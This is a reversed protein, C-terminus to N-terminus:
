GHTWEGLYKPMMARWTPWDHAWGPGWSDVWNPVSKEGLLRALAWSEGINEAHGEGSALLIFRQQLLALHDGDLNRLFRMPTAKYYDETYRDIGAFRLIDYTGSMALARGFIHPYRCLMAVAHLAGISAGATWIPIGDTRCDAYIAPVVEHRVYRQFANMLWMRHEISGEPAFWAAGAVSDCSYVKIRGAGILPGLARILLFREIEEADGGATPFIFVPQGFYGWRVFTVNREVRHSYWSTKLFTSM